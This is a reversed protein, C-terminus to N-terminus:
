PHRAEYPLAQQHDLGDSRTAAVAALLDNAQVGSAGAGAFRDVPHAAFLGAEREKGRFDRGIGGYDADDIGNM